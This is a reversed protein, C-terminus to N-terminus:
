SDYLTRLLRAPNRQARATQKTANQMLPGYRRDDMYQILDNNSVLGRPKNNFNLPKGLDDTFDHITLNSLALVLADARDPSNHGKAKAEKKSELIIKGQTEHQKYYRNTLQNMLKGARDNVASIDVLCESIIRAARFWLEAGRNGFGVNKVVPPSQNNTRIVKYGYRNGLIDLLGAGVGGDDAYIDADKLEWKKFLEVLVPATVEDLDNAHFTEIGIFRNGELIVLVNEDGGRAIDLGARRKFSKVTKAIPPHNLCRQYQELSLVTQEELSTFLALHKSRFVYSNEGWERRDKEIQMVDKHPCAYSDIVISFYEHPKYGEKWNRSNKFNKYFMGTTPGPSSIKLFRNFTCRSFSEFMPDEVTKSENAVICVEGKPFDPFPHWGEARGPDDTRFLVIESHTLTCVIHGKKILFVKEIGCHEACFQNIQFARTRIYSETQGKLQSASASTAILRSRTKCLCHFISWPAIIFADKGSGNCAVLLFELPQKNTFTFKNKTKPCIGDGILDLVDLQWNHWVTEGTKINEDFFTLMEYASLFQMPNFRGDSFTTQLKGHDVAKGLIYDIEDDDTNDEVSKTRATFEEVSGQEAVSSVPSAAQPSASSSEKQRHCSISNDLQESSGGRVMLKSLEEESLITRKVKEKM